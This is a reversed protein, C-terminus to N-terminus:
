AFGGRGVVSAVSGVMIRGGDFPFMILTPLDSDGVNLYDFSRRNNREHQAHECGYTETIERLATMLRYHYTPQHYCRRTLEQVSPYTTTKLKGTLLCKIEKGKGPFARELTKISTTNM